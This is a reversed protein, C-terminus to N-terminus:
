MHKKDYTFDHKAHADWWWSFKMFPRFDKKLLNDLKMIDEKELEFSFSEFNEKLHEISKSGPIPVVGYSHEYNLIIQANSKKYKQALSTVLENKLLNTGNGLPFWGIVTIGKEQMFKVQDMNRYYPNFEIENVQPFVKCIELIKQTKAINFNSLGINKILGKHVFEELVQYAELFEGYPKHLLMLDIHDVRLRKLTNEIAKRAREKKYDCPWLKSVIFLEKKKLGYKEIAEGISNENYYRNATDILRFGADYANKIVEGITESGYSSTGLGIDPMYSGNNLKIRGM